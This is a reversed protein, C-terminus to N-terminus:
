LTPVLRDVDKGHDLLQLDLSVLQSLLLAHKLLSAHLLLLVELQSALDFLLQVFLYLHIFSHVLLNFSELLLISLQNLLKLLTLSLFILKNLAKFLM